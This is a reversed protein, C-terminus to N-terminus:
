HRVSALVEAFSERSFLPGHDRETRRIATKVKRSGHRRLRDIKREFRKQEIVIPVYSVGVDMTFVKGGRAEIARIAAEQPLHM